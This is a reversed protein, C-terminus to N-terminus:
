KYLYTKCINRNKIEISRRKMWTSSSLTHQENAYLIWAISCRCYLNWYIDSQKLSYASQILLSLNFKQDEFRIKSIQSCFLIAFFISSFNFIWWFIHQYQPKIYHLINSNTITSYEMIELQIYKIVFKHNQEWIM